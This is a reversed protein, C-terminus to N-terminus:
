TICYFHSMFVFWGNKGQQISLNKEVKENTGDLPSKISIFYLSIFLLCSQIM